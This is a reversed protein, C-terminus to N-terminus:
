LTKGGRKSIDGMKYKQSIDSKSGLSSGYCAPASDVKGTKKRKKGNHTNEMNASLVNIKSYSFLLIQLSNM